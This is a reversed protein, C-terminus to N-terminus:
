RGSPQESDVAPAGQEKAALKQLYREPDAKFRAVCRRCCLRLTLDPQGERRYVYQVIQGPVLREGSVICVHQPNPTGSAPSQGERQADAAHLAAVSVLGYVACVM